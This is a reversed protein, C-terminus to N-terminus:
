KFDFKYVVGLQIVSNLQSDSININNDYLGVTEDENFNSEFYDRDNFVDILGINYRLELSIGSNFDYGLGTFFNFDLDEIGAYTSSFNDNLRFNIGSGFLIHAGIGKVPTFKNVLSLVLYDIDLDNVGNIGSKGGQRSYTIEPQLTYFHAFEIAALTGIYFDAKTDIKKSSTLTAFNIGSRFGPRLKIQAFSISFSAFLLPLLINKKM